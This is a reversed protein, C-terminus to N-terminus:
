SNLCAHKNTALELEYEQDSHEYGDSCLIPIFASIIGVTPSYTRRIMLTQFLLWMEEGIVENLSALGRGSNRASAEGRIQVLRYRSAWPRLIHAREVPVSLHLFLLKSVPRSANLITGGSACKKM